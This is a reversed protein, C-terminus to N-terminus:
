KCIKIKVVVKEIIEDDVKLGPRHIDEPFVLVFGGNELVLFSEDDVDYKTVDKEKNYPIKVKLTENSIDAYGVKEKGNLVIQIDLHDNHNEADMYDKGVYRQRNIIVNENLVYKGVELALLDTANIYEIAQDIEKSIGLYTNLDKIKGIIM